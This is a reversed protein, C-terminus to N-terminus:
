AKYKAIIKKAEDVNNDTKDGDRTPAGKVAEAVGKLWEAFDLLVKPDTPLSSYRKNNGVSIGATFPGYANKGADWFSSMDLSVRFGGRKFEMVTERQTPHENQIPQATQGFTKVVDNTINSYAEM